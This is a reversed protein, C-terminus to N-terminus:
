PTVVDDDDDPVLEEAARLRTRAADMLHEAADEVGGAALFLEEWSAFDETPDGTLILDANALTTMSRQMADIEPKLETHTSREDSM